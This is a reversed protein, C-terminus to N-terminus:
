PAITEKYKWSQGKVEMVVAPKNANRKADLTIKGTVGPFDKTANIADRLKEPEVGGARKIADALVRVSDYGLAAMDDPEEGNYKAKYNKLFDQIVPSKDEASYHASFYSGELSTGALKILEPSVWGDGGLLPTVIGLERAQRAMPGVSDYYGPVFIAQPNAAKVATLQGKFDVDGQSYSQEAVIEGGNKAFYEKFFKALGVSYDNKTDTIVAVKTAKLSNLAFKAMVTGQFPDIFCIRSIYDGKETVQPNTSSPSIMPIKKEQCIPAAELSRKSAVEGLIAVVQDRSILKKVINTSEGSTSRNDESILELTKGLVGGAANIEEVALVTGKHSSQGFSANDGTLSAYEGIKITAGSGAQKKCANLTLCTTAIGLSLFTLKTMIM